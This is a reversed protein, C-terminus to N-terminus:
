FSFWKIHRVIRTRKMKQGQLLYEHKATISMLKIISIKYSPWESDHEHDKLRKRLEVICEDEGM